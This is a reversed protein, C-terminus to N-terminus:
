VFECILVYLQRVKVKSATQGLELDSKHLCGYRCLLKFLFFNYPLPCSLFSLSWTDQCHLFLLFLFLQPIPLQHLLLLLQKLLLLLHAVQSFYELYFRLFWLTLCRKSCKIGANPKFSVIQLNFVVAVRRGLNSKIVWVIIWLILHVSSFIMKKFRDLLHFFSLSFLLLFSILTQKLNWRRLQLNYSQLAHRHRFFYFLFLYVFVKGLMFRYLDLCSVSCFWKQFVWFNLLSKLVFALTPFLRCYINEEFVNLSRRPWFHVWFQLQM